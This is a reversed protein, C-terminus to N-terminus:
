GAAGWRRPTSGARLARVCARACVRLCARTGARLTPDFPPSILSPSVVVWGAARHPTVHARVRLPGRVCLHDDAGSSLDLPPEQLQQARQKLVDVKWGYRALQWTGLGLTTM